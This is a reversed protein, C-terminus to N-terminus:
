AKGSAAAVPPIVPLRDDDEDDDLTSGALGGVQQLLSKLFRQAIKRPNMRSLEANLMVQVIQSTPVRIGAKAVIESADQFTAYSDADLTITVNASKM